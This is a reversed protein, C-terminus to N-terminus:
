VTYNLGMRGGEVYIVQGSVYASDDTALFMAIGAVDEPEGVRGMPTRSMIRAKTVPDGLLAVRTLETAITGPGIANVRIGRPSLSLSMANTLSAIAGKSAAYAPINPQTLKVSTSAMNIISGAIKREVMHRAVAQGCLFVSKLNTRIVLDWDAETFDLFDARRNIGANALLIDIQGFREIAQGVMADVEPKFGVDCAMFVASLGENVLGQTAKRGVDESKDVLVVNAGERAFRQACGFGIGQAAGTVIATKGKLRMSM